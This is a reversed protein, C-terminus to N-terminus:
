GSFIFYERIAADIQAEVSVPKQVPAEPQKKVKQVTLPMNVGLPNLVIGKAEEPLVQALKLADVVVPRFKKERNFRQFEIVDTFIPQFADGNPAKVVPVQVNPNTKGPEIEGEVKSFDVALIFRSRVLDAIMEEELEQLRKMRVMDDKKQNPRRLEQIFYIVTLQLATNLMPVEKKEAVKPDLRAIEDLPMRTVGGEDEFVLMNVGILHLSGFFALYQSKEMPIVGTPMQKEAYAKAAATALEENAFIYIQDDFEEPDCEVFPMRTSASFLVYIKELSHIKKVTLTYDIAM